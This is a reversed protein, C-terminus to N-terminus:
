EEDEKPKIKKLMREFQTFDVKNAKGQLVVVSTAIATLTEDYGFEDIIAAVVMGFETIIEDSPGMVHVRNKEVHIM